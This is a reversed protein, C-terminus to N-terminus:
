CGRFTWWGSLGPPIAPFGALMPVLLAKYKAREDEGMEPAWLNHGDWRALAHGGYRGDTMRALFDAADRPAPDILCEALYGACAVTLMPGTNQARRRRFWAAGITAQTREPGPPRFHGLHVAYPAHSQIFKEERIM